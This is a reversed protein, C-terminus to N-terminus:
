ASYVKSIEAVLQGFVFDCELLGSDELLTFICAEVFHM